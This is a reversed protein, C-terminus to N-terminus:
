AGAGVGTITGTRNVTVTGANAGQQIDIGNGDTGTIVINGSGGITINSAGSNANLTNVSVGTRGSINGTGDLLINVPGYSQLAVGTGAGISGTNTIDGNVHATLDGTASTSQAFLMLSAVGTGDITAGSASNYT